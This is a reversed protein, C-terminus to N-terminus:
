RVNQANFRGAFDNGQALTHGVQTHAVPHHAARANPTSSALEALGTFLIHANLAL